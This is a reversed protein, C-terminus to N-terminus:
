RSGGTRVPDHVPAVEHVAEYLPPQAEVFRELGENVGGALRAM